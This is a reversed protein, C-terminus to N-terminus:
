FYLNGGIIIALLIYLVIILFIHNFNNGHHKECDHKKSCDM